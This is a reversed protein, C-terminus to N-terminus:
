LVTRTLFPGWSLVCTFSCFAARSFNGRWGKKWTYLTWAEIVLITIDCHSIRVQFIIRRSSDDRVTVLNGADIDEPFGSGSIDHTCSVNYVNIQHPYFVISTDSMDFGNDGAVACCFFSVTTM